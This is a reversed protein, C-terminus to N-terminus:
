NQLKFFHKFFCHLSSCCSSCSSCSSWIGQLLKEGLLHLAWCEYTTIDRWQPNEIHTTMNQKWRKWGLHASRRCRVSLVKAGETPSFICNTEAPSLSSKARGSEYTSNVQIILYLWRAVCCLVVCADATLSYFSSPSPSNWQTRIQM